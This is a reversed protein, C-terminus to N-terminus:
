PRMRRVPCSTPPTRGVDRRHVRDGVYDRDYEARQAQVWARENESIRQAHWRLPAFSSVLATTPVDSESPTRAIVMRKRRVSLSRRESYRDFRTASAGPWLRNSYAAARKRRGGRDVYGGTTHWARGGRVRRQRYAGGRGPPLPHHPIERCGKHRRGERTSPRHRRVLLVWATTLETGRPSIATGVRPLM